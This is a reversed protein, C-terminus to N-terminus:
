GEIKARLLTFMWHSVSLYMDLLERQLDVARDLGADLSDIALNPYVIQPLLGILCAAFQGIILQVGYLYDQMTAARQNLEQFAGFGM